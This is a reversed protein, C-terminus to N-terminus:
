SDRIENILKTIKLTQWRQAKMYITDESQIINHEFIITFDMKVTNKADGWHVFFFDVM